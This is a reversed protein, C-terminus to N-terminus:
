WPWEGYYWRLLLVLSVLALLAGFLVDFLNLMIESRLGAGWLESGFARPPTIVGSGLAFRVHLGHPIDNSAAVCRFRVDRCARRTPTCRQRDM